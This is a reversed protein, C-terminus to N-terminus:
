SGSKNDIFTKSEEETIERFTCGRHVKVLGRLCKSITNADLNNYLAFRAINYFLEERGGQFTAIFFRGTPLGKRRRNAEASNESDAVFLCTNRSYVKNKVGPQKIDKDLSYMRLDKCDKWERYGHISPLDECFNQFNHWREDVSCGVYSLRSRQFNKSYCREMMGHWTDYEKTKVGDIRARHRGQGMYGVGYVSPRYPNIPSSNVLTGLSVVLRVGCDFQILFFSYQDRDGNKIQTNLQGLVKFAEGSRNVLTKGIYKSSSDRLEFGVIKGLTNYAGMPKGIEVKEELDKM